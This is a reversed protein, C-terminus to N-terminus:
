ALDFEETDKVVVRAGIKGTLNGSNSDFVNKSIINDMTTSIESATIDERVDYVRINHTRNLETAFNMELTRQAAM